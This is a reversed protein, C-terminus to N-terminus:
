TTATLECVCNVRFGHQELRTQWIKWDSDTANVITPELKSAKAVALWIHDDLDFVKNEEDPFRLEHPVEAYSPELPTVKVRECFNPIHQVSLLWVLFEPTKRTPTERFHSRYKRYIINTDDLVVVGKRVDMLTQMCNRICTDTTNEDPAEKMSNVLVNEDIVFASM